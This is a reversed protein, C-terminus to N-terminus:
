TIMAVEKVVLCILLIDNTPNNTHTSDHVGQRVIVYDFTIPFERVIITTTAAHSMFLINILMGSICM